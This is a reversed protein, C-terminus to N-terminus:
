EGVASQAPRLLRQRSPSAFCSWFIITGVASLAFAVWFLMRFGMAEALYGGGLAIAAFCLGAAMEGAGAVLGRQEPAILEMSYVMFAPYRIASLGVVGIFGIAAASLYPALALPLFSLMTGIGAWLVLTANGWRRAMWPVMLAIPIAVLRGMAAILGIQTTPVNLDTDLYVNFFISTTAAGSVQFFRVFVLMAILIVPALAVAPMEQSIQVGGARKEALRPDVDHAAAMMPIAPLLLLGGLLLAYRYPTAHDTSLNLIGGLFEPLGGGVLSGAFAAVSLLAMQWSFIRNRDAASTSGMIFPTGNVFFFALGSMIAVYGSILGIGQGPAAILETLPVLVAGAIMLVVGVLMARKIGWRRGMLGAPLSLLAFALLGSSNVVGVFEAGYGLRLMYLNFLVSYVGGDLAFGVLLQLAFFLYVNRM